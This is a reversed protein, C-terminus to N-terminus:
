FLFFFFFFRTKVCNGPTAYALPSRFLIWVNARPIWFTDDKKHWMRVTPTHLILSPKSLPKVVEYKHTEFNQPIFDNNGPLSLALHLDLNKLSAKLTDSVELVEYETGYWRETQTTQVGGPLLQSTVTIRFADERLWLLSEQILQPDYERILSPGSLVYQSPYSQQMLGALRSTYQSPLYKEKFRFALSALSQVERFISEQPGVKKLLAIYQFIITIVDEYHVTLSIGTSQCQHYWQSTM